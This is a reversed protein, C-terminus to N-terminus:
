RTKKEEWTTKREAKQVSRREDRRLRSQPDSSEARQHVPSHIPISLLFAPPPPSPPASLALSVYAFTRRLSSLFPHIHSSLLLLFHLAICTRLSICGLASM